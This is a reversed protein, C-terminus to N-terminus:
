SIRIWNQNRSFVPTYFVFDLNYKIKAKQFLDYVRFQKFISRNQVLNPHLFTFCFQGSSRYSFKVRLFIPSMKEFLSVYIM